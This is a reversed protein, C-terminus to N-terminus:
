PALTASNIEIIRLKLALPRKVGQDQYAKKRNEEQKRNVVCTCSLRIAKTEIFLSATSIDMNAKIRIGLQLEFICTLMVYTRKEVLKYQDEYMSALEGSGNSYSRTMVINTKVISYAHAVMAVHVRSSTGL